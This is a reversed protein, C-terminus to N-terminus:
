AFLGYLFGLPHHARAITYVMGFTALAAIYCAAKVARTRGRKIAFVGLVVYVVLLLVKVTLWGNSFLAGPLITLLMLAATLLSTDIAYSTWRVVLWHPWRMGALVGAGRLAFLGGSLLALGIHAAKIQPYFEIM